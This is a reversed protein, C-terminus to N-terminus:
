NKGIKRFINIITGRYSNNNKLKRAIEKASEVQCLQEYIHLEESSLKHTM